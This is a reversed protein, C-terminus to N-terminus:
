ALLKIFEKSIIQTYQSEKEPFNHAIAWCCDSFVGNEVTGIKILM